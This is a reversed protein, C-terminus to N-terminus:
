NPMVFIINSVPREGDHDFRNNDSPYNRVGSGHEYQQLRMYFTSSGGGDLNIADRCGLWRMLMTLESLTLGEARKNFRGDAVLIVVSGDNRLGLATRNHRHTVFTRDDRQPVVRSDFLLMPGATMVHSYPLLREAFRSSDPVVLRLVSDDLCITAYQYYKRNISDTALPVNEGRECGDIRLYCVPNGKKMDFFSGNVAAVAHLRRAQVSTETLVTDFAFRLRHVQDAPVSMIYIYQAAGFLGDNSFHHKYFFIGDDFRERWDANMFRLSDVNQGYAAVSLIFLFVLSLCRQM